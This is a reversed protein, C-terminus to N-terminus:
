REVQVHADIGIGQAILPDLSPHGLGQEVQVHEDVTKVESGDSFLFKLLM